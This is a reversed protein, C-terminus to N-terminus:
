SVGEEGGGGGAGAGAVVKSIEGKKDQIQEFAERVVSFYCLFKSGQPLPGDLRYLHYLLVHVLLIFKCLLLIAVFVYLSVEFCVSLCWQAFAAEIYM